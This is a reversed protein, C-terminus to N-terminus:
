SVLQDFSLYKEPNPPLGTSLIGDERVEWATLTEIKRWNYESQVKVEEKCIRLANRKLFRISCHGDTCNM